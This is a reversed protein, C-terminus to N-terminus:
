VFLNVKALQRRLIRKGHDSAVSVHAQLQLTYDQSTEKNENEKDKTNKGNEGFVPKAVFAAIEMLICRLCGQTTGELFGPFLTKRAFDEPAAVVINVAVVVGAIKGDFVAVESEHCRKVGATIWIVECVDSHKVDGITCDHVRYVSETLSAANVYM